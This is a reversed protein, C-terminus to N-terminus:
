RIKFLKKANEATIREVEDIEIGKVESIKRAVYKVNIPENRDERPLPKPNLYPCDTEILVDKLDINRILKDYSESYTIIGNLGIKYGMEIFKQATKWSGIFSHVVGRKEIPNKRLIEFLDDYADWCHIAMPKKVENALKIFEKLVKKQKEKIESIGTVGDFHHYDLGVEGIAVVKENEALKKYEGYDFEEFYVEGRGQPPSQSPTSSEVKLKESKVKIHIPHIGVAAWVGTEFKQAYEVARQSTSYQSGVNIIFTNSELSRKIVDDGDDKFAKFNVHAHSDFM